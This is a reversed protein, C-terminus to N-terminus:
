LRKAPVPWHGPNIVFGTVRGGADRTFRIVDRGGGEILFDNEALRGLEIPRGGAIYMGAGASEATLKAGVRKITVRSGPGLEYRGVFDDLTQPNLLRAVAMVPPDSMPVSALVADWAVESAILALEGPSLRSNEVEDTTVAYLVDGDAATAFPQIARSMSTHVQVALRQLAWSELKQNTVVLTITTNDSPGSPSDTTASATSRRAASDVFGALRDNISGCKEGWHMQRCRVIQGSRDVVAGYSNVITFVAVKTPGIQKFAGGQGSTERRGFAGGSMAFRGGGRAGLYFKGPRAARLAARGLAHDPTVVSFRRRGAGFGLDNIIAGAVGQISPGRVSDITMARIEDAVGTVASLGQWSGGSLAIGNFDHDEYGLRLADTNVTGPAGGRVDVVAQVRNPFYFVTVGTPGEDYEATGIRMGPFDFDLTRGDFTTRPVPAPLTQRTQAMASSSVAALLLLTRLAITM